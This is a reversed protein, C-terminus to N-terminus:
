DVGWDLKEPAGREIIVACLRALLAPENGLAQGTSIPLGLRLVVEAIKWRLGRQFFQGRRYPGTPWDLLEILVAFLEATQAVELAATPVSQM